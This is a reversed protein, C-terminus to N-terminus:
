PQRKYQYPDELQSFAIIADAKEQSLPLRKICYRSAIVFGIRWSAKKLWGSDNGFKAIHKQRLVEM